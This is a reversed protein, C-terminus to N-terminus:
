NNPILRKQKDLDVIKKIIFYISISIVSSFFCWVSLLYNEYFIATVLYAFLITVGLIWMRKINSFFPPAITALPYLTIVFIRLENPYDLTYAIHYEIIKGEVPYILLCYALYGGLLLGAGVLIRQTWKRSKRKELHLIAIPVCIPWVVQAFGVYIFTAVKQISILDSNPLTLWLVGEAFQQVGFILPISAFLLQSKHNTKKISAVGIVTLVAGATFSATASFCM